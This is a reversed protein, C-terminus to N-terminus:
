WEGKYNTYLVIDFTDNECKVDAVEERQSLDEEIQHILKDDLKIKFVNEIESYDIIYQFGSESKQQVTQILFNVILSEINDM